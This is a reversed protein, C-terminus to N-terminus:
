LSSDLLTLGEQTWGPLAEQFAAHLPTTAIAKVGLPSRQWVGMLWVLDFGLDELQDWERDPVTALSVGRKYKLSLQQLWVVTNIEYLNM